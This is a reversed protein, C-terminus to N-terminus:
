NGLSDILTDSEIKYIIEEAESITIRIPNGLIEDNNYDYFTPLASTGLEVM